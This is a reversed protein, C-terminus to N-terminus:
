RGVVVVAVQDYEDQRRPPLTLTVGSSGESFSVAQGNSLLTAQRVHAGLSPLALVRDPWSVVHVFV